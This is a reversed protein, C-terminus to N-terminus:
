WHKLFEDRSETERFIVIDSSAIEAKVKRALMGTTNRLGLPSDKGKKEPNILLQKRKGEQKKQIKVYAYM